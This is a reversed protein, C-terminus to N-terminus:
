KYAASLEEQQLLSWEGVPVTVGVSRPILIPPPLEVEPLQISSYHRPAEKQRVTTSPTSPTIDPTHTTGRDTTNWSPTKSSCKMDSHKFKGVTDDHINLLSIAKCITSTAANSGCHKKQIQKRMPVFTKSHSNLSSHRRHKTM